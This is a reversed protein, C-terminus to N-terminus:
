NKEKPTQPMQPMAILTHHRQRYVSLLADGEERYMSKTWDKLSILPRGNAKLLVDGPMLGYLAAIGSSQLAQVKLGRLLHENELYETPNLIVGYHLPKPYAKPDHLMVKQKKHKHARIFQIWVPKTRDQVGFLAAAENANQVPIDHIHTIIDQPKLAAKQAASQPLIETVLAGKNTPSTLLHALPETLTQVMIGMQGRKVKGYAALQETVPKVLTMPTAFGIGTNGGHNGRFIATNIGLLHGEDDILAGGSNGPNIPADIQIFNELSTLGLQRHLASIIGSTVTHALGFPNGLATVTDGIHLKYSPAFSLATLSQAPIALLAIDTAHDIGLLKGFFRRGDNLMVTIREHPPFLHASTVIWGKQANIIVGSGAVLGPAAPEKAGQQETNSQPNTLVHIQVISPLVHPLLAALSKHATSAAQLPAPMLLTLCALAVSALSTRIKQPM